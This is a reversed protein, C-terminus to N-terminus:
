PAEGGQRGAIFTDAQRRILAMVATLAESMTVKALTQDDAVVGIVNIAHHIGLKYGHLVAGEVAEPAGM